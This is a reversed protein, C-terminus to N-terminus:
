EWAFASVRWVEGSRVVTVQAQEYTIKSNKRDRTTMEQQATVRFTMSGSVESGGVLETSIARTTRGQYEAYDSAPQIQAQLVQYYAPTVLEQVEEVNSFAVDSSYTGFREAFTRAVTQADATGPTVPPTLTDVTTDRVEASPVADLDVPVPSASPTRLLWFLVLLIILVFLVLAAIILKRRQEFTM